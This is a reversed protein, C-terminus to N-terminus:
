DSVDIEVRRFGRSCFFWGRGSGSLRWSRSLIVILRTCVATLSPSLWYTSSRKGRGEQIRVSQLAEWRDTM